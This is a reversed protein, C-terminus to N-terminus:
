AGSKAKLLQFVADTVEKPTISDLCACSKESRCRAKPLAQCETNHELGIHSFGAPLRYAAAVIGFLAVVPTNVAIALHMPGTDGTVLLTCRELLAASERPSFQGAAVGIPSQLRAKLDIISALDNPGGFVVIHAGTKAIERAVEAFKEVGWQRRAVSAGMNLGVLPKQPEFGQNQLWQNAKERESETPVLLGVTHNQVPPAGLVNAMNLDHEVSPPGVRQVEINYAWEHKNPFFGARRSAGCFRAMFAVRRSGSLCLAVDPKERRLALFAQWTGWWNKHHAINLDSLSSNQLLSLPLPAAVNIIRADPWRKRMALLAPFSNLSDGLHRHGFVVITRPENM